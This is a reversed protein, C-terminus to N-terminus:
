DPRLDKYLSEEQQKSTRNGCTLQKQLNVINKQITGFEEAASVLETDDVFSYGAV